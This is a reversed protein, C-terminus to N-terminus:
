LLPSVFRFEESDFLGRDSLKLSPIVLLAMFSLTMFPARLTSGLAKAHADLARYRRAVEYGDLPSMLGAIPLALVDTRGASSVAVGGGSEIIADLAALLDEDSAGVAILNHSDHAVSSALAGRALGFGRIFAVAPPALGYRNVVVLKLIDNQPDATVAGDTLRARGVLARTVLQGDEVGIVRVDPREAPLVLSSKELPPHAVRGLERAGHHELLPAGNAAVLRGAVYTELVRLAGRQPETLGEAILFDAPDGPRLLGVPLGYHLVPVVCAARLVELPAHGHALARAVLGDIHSEALDDPHRDDSGFMCRDAHTALLPHLAEFDRAASGERVIINMGADLKDRAEALSTCEHDTSIGVAAYGRLPEGRLGPAHGDIPRGLRRALAVKALVEPDGALVGPYNMVESLFTVDSAEFLPTLEAAGLTAGSTEFSTAPVCSPAGFAFHFPVRAADVLMFRVGDVGLVNAIEHPDCVAAVTGHVTALRAFEAPPLMSSEIHIHADVFGPLICRSPEVSADEVLRAIHGDEVDVHGRFSRRGLPDFITGSYRM